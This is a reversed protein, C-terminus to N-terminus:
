PTARGPPSLAPRSRRALALWLALWVGLAIVSQLGPPVRTGLLSGLATGVAIPIGLSALADRPSLGIRFLWAAMVAVALAVAALTAPALKYLPGFLLTGAWAAAAGAVAIALDRQLGRWTMPWTRHVLSVGTLLGGLAGFLLGTVLETNYPMGLFKGIVIDDTYDNFVLGWASFWALAALAGVMVPHPLGSSGAAVFTELTASPTTGSEHQTAHGNSGTPSPPVGAGPAAARAPGPPSAKARADAGPAAGLAPANAHPTEGPATESPPAEARPAADRAAEPPPAEARPASGQVTERPPVHAAPPTFAHVSPADPGPAASLPADPSAPSSREGAGDAPRTPRSASAGSTGVIRELIEILCDVDYKWRADSLEHAQRRSLKRLSDPLAEERPMTAGQVLVPIVRVNRELATEIELRVFDMPDNLRRRRRADTSTLWRKGIVVLLVEAAAVANQIFEVFDVGPEITDIDMVLRDSGFRDRLDDFLRGAHGASDDRRYSIFIGAM